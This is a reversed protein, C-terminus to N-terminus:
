QVLSIAFCELQQHYGKTFPVGVFTPEPNNGLVRVRNLIHSTSSVIQSRCFEEHGVFTSNLLQKIMLECYKKVSL